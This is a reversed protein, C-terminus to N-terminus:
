LVQKRIRQQELELAASRKLEECADETRRSWQEAVSLSEEMEAREATLRAVTEDLALVDHQLLECEEAEAAAGRELKEMRSVAADYTVSLQEEARSTWMQLRRAAMQASQVQERCSQEVEAVHRSHAERYVEAQRRKEQELQELRATLVAIQAAQEEIQPVEHARRIEPTHPGELFYLTYPM